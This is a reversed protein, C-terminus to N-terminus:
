RRRKNQPQGDKSARLWQPVISVRAGDASTGTELGLEVQLMVECIAMLAGHVEHVQGTVSIDKFSSRGQDADLVQIKAGTADQIDRVNAGRSGIIASCFRNPVQPMKVVCRIELIDANLATIQAANNMVVETPPPPLQDRQFQEVLRRTTQSHESNQQALWERQMDDEERVPPNEPQRTVQEVKAMKLLQDRLAEIRSKPAADAKVSPQYTPQQYQHIPQPRPYDLRTNLAYNRDLDTIANILQVAASAVASAPPESSGPLKTVRLVREDFSPVQPLFIPQTQTNAGVQRLATGGSALIQQAAESSVIMHLMPNRPDEEVIELLAALASRVAPQTGTLMATREDESEPFFSNPSSVSFRAGTTATLTNIKQMSLLSVRQDPCLFKVSIIQAPTAYLMARPDRPPSNTM